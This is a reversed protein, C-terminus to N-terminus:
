GPNSPPHDILSPLERPRDTGLFWLTTVAYGAIGALAVLIAAVWREGTPMLYVLAVASAMLGFCLAGFPIIWKVKCTLLGLLAAGFLAGAVIALLLNLIDM